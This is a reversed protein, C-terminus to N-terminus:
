TGIRGSIGNIIVSRTQQTKLHLMDIQVTQDPAGDVGIKGYPSTVRVRVPSRVAGNVWVQNIKVNQPLTVTALTTTTTVNPGTEIIYDISYTQSNATFVLDYDDAVLNNAVVQGSLVFNQVQRIKSVLDNATSSLEQATRLKLFNVTVITSLIVTIAIVITLEILTFGGFKDCNGIKLKEIKM